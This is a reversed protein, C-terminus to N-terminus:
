RKRAPFAADLEWADLGDIRVNGGRAALSVGEADARTPYVRSTLCRRENAFLELVSGDVFARLSLSDGAVPMRQDGTAPADARSSRSRDVTVAEGDYRVVTRETGAPSEFLGLELTADADVTADVALEAADGRLDLGRREGDGLVFGDTGVRRTRLSRLEAAPRQRLEGDDALSLERPLSLLGSWGAYWQAEVGRVEPIWGWSLVRGEDDRTSQPAYFDGYDLRERHEVDFSPADLDASGVFYETHNYNSVHLLQRDGFDLLEPCEWVVGNDEWDGVLLPGVYEWERLDPSRYLLAAGGVDTVGTGILQYWFDDESRATAAADASSRRDSPARGGAHWVSHDRFEARWDETALVDLGEPVSRIVPNADHKEWTGLDPDTSTALCPLQDRGRGGTYLLTPTGAEGASEDAADVVACGSWCGDRDPGEPDPALAVPEDRWHVLDDSTAHGWHITGHFPGGPNYQYFVHYTGGYQIVGNPDNLWNAPPAFHYRPRHHDGGLRRRMAAFGAGDSPRDTFDPRRHTDGGLVALANRVLSEHTAAAAFEAHPVFSMEAGVGYVDGEGVSWAVAATQAVHYDDGRVTSALVDGSSPLVAEYRAFPRVVDPPQTHATRGDVGEFLPHDDYLRKVLLGTPHPSEETGTADPAVDDVGFPVVASLAHLSLFLGGGDRLYTQVADACAAADEPTPDLPRDRHWWAVDYASLSVAGSAVDSLAVVDVRAATSECWERAAHQEDTLDAAHLFAVSVPVDDM